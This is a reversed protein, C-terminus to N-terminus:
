QATLDNQPHSLSQEKMNSQQNIPRFDKAIDAESELNTRSNTDQNRNPHNQTNAAGPSTPAKLTDDYTQQTKHQKNGKGRGM